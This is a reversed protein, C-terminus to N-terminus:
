FELDIKGVDGMGLKGLSRYKAPITDTLTWQRGKPDLKFYVQTTFRFIPNHAMKYRIVLKMYWPGELASERGPVPIDPIRLRVPVAGSKVQQRVAPMNNLFAVQGAWYWFGDVRYILADKGGRNEVSIGPLHPAMVIQPRVAAFYGLVVLVATLILSGVIWRRKSLGQNEKM